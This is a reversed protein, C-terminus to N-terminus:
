AEAFRVGVIEGTEDDRWCTLRGSEVGEVLVQRIVAPEVALAAAMDRILAWAQTYPLGDIMVIEGGHELRLGISREVAGVVRGLSATV